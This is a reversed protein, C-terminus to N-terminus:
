KTSNKRNAAKHEYQETHNNKHWSLDLPMMTIQGFLSFQLLSMSCYHEVGTSINYEILTPNQNSKHQNAVVIPKGQASILAFKRPSYPKQHLLMSHHTPKGDRKWPDSVRCRQEGVEQEGLSQEKLKMSYLLVNEIPETVIDSFIDATFASVM